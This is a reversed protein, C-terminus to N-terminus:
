IQHMGKVQRSELKFTHSCFKTCLRINFCRQIIKSRKRCWMCCSNEKTSCSLYFVFHISINLIIEQILSKFIHNKPTWNASILIWSILLRDCFAFQSSSLSFLSYIQHGLRVKCMTFVVWPFNQKEQSWYTIISHHLSM